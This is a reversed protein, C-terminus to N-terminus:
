WRLAQIATELVLITVGYIRYDKSAKSGAVNLIGIQKDEIFRKLLEAGEDVTLMDMDLHLLPKNHEVAKNRTLLCGGSLKGHTIIVTGNSDSVNKETREPYSESRMEHLHYKDSLPGIETLRGKPIWGGHPINNQIAVDLGAQDAGTQGGSIIKKLM